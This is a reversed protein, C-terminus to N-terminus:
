LTTISSYYDLREFRSLWTVRNKCHRWVSWESKQITCFSVVCYFDLRTVTLIQSLRSYRRPPLLYIVEAHYLRGREMKRPWRRDFRWTTHLFLIQSRGYLPTDRLQYIVLEHDAHFLSFVSIVFLCATSPLICHNSFFAVSFWRVM